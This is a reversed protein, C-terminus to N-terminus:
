MGRLGTRLQIWGVVCHSLIWSTVFGGWRRDLIEVEPNQGWSVIGLGLVAGGGDCKKGFSACVGLFETRGRRNGNELNV